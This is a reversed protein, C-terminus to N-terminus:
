AFIAATCAFLIVVGASMRINGASSTTVVPPAPKTPKPEVPKPATPVPAVAPPPPPPVAPVVSAVPSPPSPPAVPCKKEPCSVPPISGAATMNKPPPPVSKPPPVCRDPQCSQGPPCPNKNCNDHTGNHPRHPKPQQKPPPPPPPM